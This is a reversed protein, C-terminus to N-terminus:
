AKFQNFKEMEIAYNRCMFFFTSSKPKWLLVIGQCTEITKKFNM